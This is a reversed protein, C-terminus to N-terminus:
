GGLGVRRLLHQFRPDSRLPDLRPNRTVLDFDHVQYAKELWVLAEDRDGLGLHVLAIGVPSVYQRRSRAQLEELVKRAEREKGAAAYAHGLRSLYGPNRRSLRVAVRLERIGERFDGRLTYALGLGFHAHPLDPDMELARRCEAIARDYQRAWLFTSGVNTSPSLPDLEQGRQAQSLAEEFRGVNWLFVSYMRHCEAHNPRLELARRFERESRSWDYHFRYAIAALATHAEALTEDLELATRAAAEAKPMSEQPSLPGWFTLLRYCESMGAYALAYTPEEAIAQEFTRIAKFYGTATQKNFYYRAKLFTDYAKPSVLRASTLRVWEQPTLEVKIEQAIARAIEGQLALIDGLDREYSRAWLHRDTPVHILQATIRMRQGSRAVAGEVVADVKLERAIEPLPKKAGKYLMVSTRSIVRLGSIQALDTILADTMGDVLYDQARNGTFNEFPLVAVSRIPPTSPARVAGIFRYGHRRLTEVCRPHEASDGLADRLRKMASNLGVDFDVFTDGPWLRWRLEERTVVEGPRELLLLLIQFPQEQLRIRLGHRRLEGSQADLEFAGFHFLRSHVHAEM